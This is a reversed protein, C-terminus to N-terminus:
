KRRMTERALALMEDCRATAGTRTAFEQIASEIRRQTVSSAHALTELHEIARRRVAALGNRRAYHAADDAWINGVLQILVDREVATVEQDEAVILVGLWVVAEHVIDSTMRFAAGGGIAHFRDEIERELEGTPRGGATGNISAYAASSAFKALAWVRLPFEPHTSTAAWDRDEEEELAEEAQKLTADLDFRIHPERLGAALKVETRLATELSGAGVLGVRDASLEQARVRDVTIAAQLGNEPPERYHRLIAHGFEHGMVCALEEISLLEVLASNFAVVPREDDICVSANLRPSARVYLEPLNPLLLREAVKEAMSQIGPMIASTVRVGHGRIAERANKTYERYSKRSEESVKIPEDLSFRVRACLEASDIPPENWTVGGAFRPESM